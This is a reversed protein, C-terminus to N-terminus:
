PQINCDSLHTTLIAPWKLQSHPFLLFRHRTSPVRPGTTSAFHSCLGVSARSLQTINHISLQALEEAVIGNPSRM